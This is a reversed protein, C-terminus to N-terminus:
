VYFKLKKKEKQHTTVIRDRMKNFITDYMSEYGNLVKLIKKHTCACHTINLIIDIHEVFSM